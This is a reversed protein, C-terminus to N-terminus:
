LTGKEGVLEIELELEIGFRDRVRVRVRDILERVDTATAGGRNIIFNAHVTSIEAQGARTGKLGAQEILRGAYDGTPNKFISGVSTETPQTRRRRETFANMRDVCAKPEDHRLELRAALVVEHSRKLRSQRYGFALEDKSLRRVQGGTDLVEVEVLHDAICSGHAGANGVVAGGITGPIGIAWELGAWGQRALRNALGPLPAGSEARLVATGPNVAELSNSDCHNEIVLGRIGADSVLINSGNGLLFVPVQLQRAARTWEILDSVAGAEVLVDAPGGIRFTTRPALPENTRAQDGLARRLAELNQEM